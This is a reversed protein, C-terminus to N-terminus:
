DRSNLISFPLSGIACYRVAPSEQEKDVRNVASLSPSFFSCKHTQDLWLTTADNARRLNQIVTQKPRRGVSKKGRGIRKGREFSTKPGFERGFIFSETSATPNKEREGACSCTARESRLISIRARRILILISPESRKRETGITPGDFYERNHKPGIKENGRTGEGVEKAKVFGFTSNNWRM